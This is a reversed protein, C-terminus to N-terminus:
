HNASWVVYERVPWYNQDTKPTVEVDALPISGKKKEAVVNLVVGYKWHEEVGIGQMRQGVSFPGTEPDFPNEEMDEERKVEFPFVLRETLWKFWKRREWEECKRDFAEGDDDDSDWSSDYNEAM